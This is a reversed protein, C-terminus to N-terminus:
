GSSSLSALTSEPILFDAGLYIAHNVMGIEPNMIEIPLNLQPLRLEMGRALQQNAARIVMDKGLNSLSNLTDQSLGLTKDRDTFQLVELEATGTLRNGTVRLQLQIVATVVITGVRNNTQDIYIDANAILNVTVLGGARFQISPARATHIYLSLNKNPYEEAIAPMIDGFCVGLESLDLSSLGQRKQRRFIRLFALRRGRRTNEEEKTEEPSEESSEEAECTTKLLAGIRPTEPGIRFGLFGRRHLWYLLSNITYDSILVELMRNGVPSPFSMPFPGFPTGGYGEPSFEGSLGLILDTQSAYGNVTRLSLIMDSLRRPDFSSRLLNLIAGLPDNSVGPPCVACPDGAGLTRMGVQSMMGLGGGAGAGRMGTMLPERFGVGGIAVGHAQAVSGNRRTLAMDALELQDIFNAPPLFALSVVSSTYAKHPIHQHSQSTPVIKQPPKEANPPPLWSFGKNIPVGEIEPAVHASARKSRTHQNHVSRTKAKVSRGASLVRKYRYSGASPLPAPARPASNTGTAIPLPVPRVVPNVRVVSANPSPTASTSSVTAETPPATSTASDRQQCMPSYCISPVNGGLLGGAISAIQTLPIGRPLRRLLPNIRENVLQPIMNCLQSPLMRQVREEVIHRILPLNAIAGVLGGCEICIDVYGVCATCSEVTVFPQGDPGIMIALVVNLSVHYLNVHVIGCIPIPIFLLNIQGDLNGTIGIDFDEVSFVIRNPPAPYVSVDCPPRYSSVYINCVTIQGQLEEIEQTIPPIRARVIERDLIQRALASAYRFTAINIRILLGPAGRIGGLLAPDFDAAGLGATNVGTAVSNRGVTALSNRGGTGSNMGVRFDNASGRISSAANFAKNYDIPSLVNTVSGSVRRGTSAHKRRPSVVSAHTMTKSSVKDRMTALTQNRADIM